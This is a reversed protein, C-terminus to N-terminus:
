AQEIQQSAVLGGSRLAWLGTSRRRPRISCRRLYFLNQYPILKRLENTDSETWDANSTAYSLRQLTELLGATPGALSSFANRSAYRSAMEGTFQPLAAPGRPRWDPNISDIPEGTSSRAVEALARLEERTLREIDLRGAHHLADIEELPLDIVVPPNLTALRVANDARGLFVKGVADLGDKVLEAILTGERPVLLAIDGPRLTQEPEILLEDDGSQGWAGLCDGTIEITYDM